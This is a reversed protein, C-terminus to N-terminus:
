RTRSRARWLRPPGARFVSLQGNVHANIELYENLFEVSFMNLINTEQIQGDQYSGVGLMYPEPVYRRDIRHLTQLNEFISKVGNSNSQRKPVILIFTRVRKDRLTVEVRLVAEALGEKFRRVELREVFNM